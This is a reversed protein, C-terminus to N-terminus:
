FVVASVGISGSGNQIYMPDGADQWLPAVVKASLAASRLEKEWFTYGMAVALDAALFGTHSYVLRDLRDEGAYRLIGFSSVSLKGNERFSYRVGVTLNATPGLTYGTADPGFGAGGSLAGVAALKPSLKRGFGLSATAGFAGRGTRVPSDAVVEGTPFTVGVSGGLFTKGKASKWGYRGTLDVDGFAASDFDGPMESEGIHSTVVYPLTSALAFGEPLGVAANLSATQIVHPPMFMGAMSDGGRDHTYFGQWLEGDGALAAGYEMSVAVEGPRSVNGSPLAVNRSCVCAQAGAEGSLTLAALALIM